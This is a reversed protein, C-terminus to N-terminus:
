SSLLRECLKQIGYLHRIRHLGISASLQLRSDSCVSRLEVSLFTGIRDRGYTSTQPVTQKLGIYIHDEKFVDSLLRDSHSDNHSKTHIQRYM